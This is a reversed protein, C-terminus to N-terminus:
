YVIEVRTPLPLTTGGLKVPIRYTGADAVLGGSADETTLPECGDYLKGDWLLSAEWPEKPSLLLTREWDDSCATPTWVTDEGTILSVGVQATDLSCANVGGNEISVLIEMGEGVSPNLPKPTTVIKLNKDTCTPIAVPTPASATSRHQQETAYKEAVIQFAKVAGFGILAVLGVLVLTSITRRVWM